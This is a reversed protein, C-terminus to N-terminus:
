SRITSKPLFADVGAELAAERYEAIDYLTMMVVRPPSPRAKIQRTVELGNLDPMVMDIVVLDPALQDILAAADRGSSACGVITVERQEALFRVTAELFEVSDDILLM